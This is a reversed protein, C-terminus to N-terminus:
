RLGRRRRLIWEAALLLILVLWPWPSTRLPRGVDASRVGAGTAQWALLTTDRPWRFEDTHRELELRGSWSRDLEAVSDPAVARATWDYGGAELSPLLTRGDGGVQVTDTRTAGGDATTVVEIAGGAVGPARWAVPRDAASVRDIPGVAGGTTEDGAALLWGAVGSWLRDYADSGVGPRFGWRWFGRALLVARRRGGSEQLDIAGARAGGSRELVLAEAGGDDPPLPSTLPPLDAWPVGALAAALPGSAAVPYWEGTRPQDADVGVADAGAADTAFAIVRPSSNQARVVWEPASGTLGHVVLLRASEAVRSMAAADLLGGSGDMPLFADDGVRLWGRTPIGTVRELVPMLFRPEWDPQLSVVALLGDLPDVETFASREDDGEFADGALAVRARWLVPGPEAPLDAELAVRVSRGAGPIRVVAEGAPEGDRTLEVRADAGEASATGFVEVEVEVSEGARGTRPVTLAGVGASRLDEGVDVFTVDLALSERLATVETLDAIRLDSVVTVERAGSEAARRLVPALRSGAPSGDAARDAPSGFGAVRLGSGGPLADLARLQPASGSPGAVAMSPSSDVVVWRQPPGGGGPAPFAFDALLLVVGVLIAARLAALVGRGRIPLERRRYVFLAYGVAALAAVGTAVLATM